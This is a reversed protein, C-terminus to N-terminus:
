DHKLWRVCFAHTQLLDCNLSLVVRFFTSLISFEGGLVRVFCNAGFWKFLRARTRNLSNIKLKAKTQIASHTRIANVHKENYCKKWKMQNNKSWENQAHKEKRKKKTKKKKRKASSWFSVVGSLIRRWLSSYERDCRAPLSIRKM